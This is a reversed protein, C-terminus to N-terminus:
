FAVALSGMFLLFGPNKVHGVNHLHFESKFVVNSTFSYNIGINLVNNVIVGNRHDPIGIEYRIFPMLKDYIKYAVLLYAGFGKSFVGSPIGLSDVQEIFYSIMESEFHTKSFKFEADAGIVRQRTNGDLGHRDAYYSTGLKILNGPPSIIIRAGIGKNTNDDKESPNNGRGNSLYVQYKGEWEGYFLRGLLQIGTSSQAYIRDKFGTSLERVGYISESLRTTIFTPTADHRENYIGFPSLFKGIRIQFADSHKYELFAKPVYIRGESNDAGVSAGHEYEIQSFVRYHQDVRYIAILNFHHQDFDWRRGDADKNSIEAEMDFYGYTKLSSSQAQVIISLFGVLLITITFSINLKGM